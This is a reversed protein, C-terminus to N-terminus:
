KWRDGGWLGIDICERLCEALPRTGRRENIWNVIDMPLRIGFQKSLPRAPTKCPRGPPVKQKNKRAEDSMSTIYLLKRSNDFM